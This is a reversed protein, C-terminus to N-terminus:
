KQGYTGSAFVMGCEACLIEGADKDHKLRPVHDMHIGKACWIWVNRNKQILRIIKDAAGDIPPQDVPYEPNLEIGESTAKIIMLM